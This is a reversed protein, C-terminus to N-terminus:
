QDSITPLQGENKMRHLLKQTNYTGAAVVVHSATFIRKGGFWASSKRATVKWSGDSLAQTKIM